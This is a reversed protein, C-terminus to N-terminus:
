QAGVEARKLLNALDCDPAHDGEGLIGGCEPCTMRSPSASWELRKLMTLMDPYIELFKRACLLCCGALSDYADVRTGCSCIVDRM